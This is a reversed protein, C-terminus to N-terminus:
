IMRETLVVEACNNADKDSKWRMNTIEAVAYQTYTPTFGSSSWYVKGGPKPNGSAVPVVVSGRTIVDTLEGPAYSALNSGYTDPTKDGSRVAIGLITTVTEAAPAITCTFNLVGKGDTKMMVPGGFPISASSEKNVFSAVIDDVARSIAGPYGNTFDSLVKGM